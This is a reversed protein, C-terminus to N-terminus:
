AINREGVFLAARLMVRCGKVSASNSLRLPTRLRKPPLSAIFRSCSSPKRAAMIQKGRRIGSITDVAGQIQGQDIAIPLKFRVWGTDDGNKGSAPLVATL